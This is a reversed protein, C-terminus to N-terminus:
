DLNSLITDHPFYRKTDSHKPIRPGDMILAVFINDFFFIWSWKTFNLYESFAVFIQFFRGIKKFKSISTLYKGYKTM